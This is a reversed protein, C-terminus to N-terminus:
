LADALQEWAWAFGGPSVCEFFVADHFRSLGAAKLQHTAAQVLGGEVERAQDFEALRM